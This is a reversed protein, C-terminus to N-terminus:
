VKEPSPWRTRYRVSRKLLKEDGVLLLNRVNTNLAHSAKPSAFSSGSTQQVYIKKQLNAPSSRCLETLLAKIHKQSLKKSHRRHVLQKTPFPPFDFFIILHPYNKKSYNCYLKVSM